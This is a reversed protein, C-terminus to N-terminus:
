DVTLTFSTSATASNATDTGTITITYSGTATSSSSSSSGCGSAAFGAMALLIIGALVRLKRSRYGVFGALLLGAFAIGARAVNVRPYPGADNAASGSGAVKVRKNGTAGVASSSSCATVASSGTYVTITSTVASTGSITISDPLDLCVNSVDSNSTASWSSITGTYGSTPTVTLTSTGSSGSKVTVNTASLTFSGGVTVTLSGTSAAYTADGSYTAVITHAGTTSSSFSYTASSSSLALSSNVTTGDVVITLTGTPTTTTASSASAVTITITDAAGAAPTATAASVTTTSGVLSSGTSAPWATLLNYFDISGLGTAEDYGTGAVYETVATGSCYNSGATCNNGGSTIDHFVSAYTTSSAALTYLTKNVTAGLGTSNEKQNIIALMGAFIPAAFSTGGAVTLDTTSSDRFGSNCSAAQGTSWGSTDSSCYLYGANYPSSDLSIDPVLRYGKAYDPATSIGTVGTQWSPRTTLTSTGGGGSSLAYQAGYQAGITASDDNWVQEPIYSLASAIVDSGNASEWYTTNTTAVDAAPFETGGMGTVYQSSAPFDVALAEQQAATLGSTGYCDTSGSDGAAAVVTQGQSAAQELIGNLTAYDSASMATECAGYSTSIIPAIRTDVAYNISDWVSYNSSNGVYVFYITAGKAIGGSYELDLDSEAEDGSSTAASGSGPVLVLTPDKVTLGAASQFSEIDSLVVSSQGAVAISQGSGTYGANYAANIDYITAVDKPTLYHYGPSISSTFNAKVKMRPAPRFDDLNRVAGVVGSLALPISIQTANAFHSESNVTYHHMETQFAAEVQGATGSFTISNRSNAIREVTFGQGELWSQVKALDDDTMGFSSAYQAPTLWKHYNASGPTQQEQVLADLAAKQTDSLKFQLTIGSLKTGTSIRGQDTASQARPSVTGKLPVTSNSDIEQSIRNHLLSQAGAAGSFFPHVPNRAAQAAFVHAHIAFLATAGFAISRLKRAFM